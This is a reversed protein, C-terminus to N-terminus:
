LISVTNIANTRHIIDVPNTNISDQKHRRSNCIAVADMILIRVVKKGILQLM